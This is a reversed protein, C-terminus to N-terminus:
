IATTENTSSLTRCVTFLELILEQHCWRRPLRHARRREDHLAASQKSTRESASGGKRKPSAVVGM